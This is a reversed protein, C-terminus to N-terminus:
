KEKKFSDKLVTKAQNYIEKEVDSIKEEKDIKKFVKYGIYVVFLAALAVVISSLIFILWMNCKFRM